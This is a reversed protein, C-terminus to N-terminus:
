EVTETTSFIFNWRGSVTCKQLVSVPCGHMLAVKAPEVDTMCVPKRCRLLEPAGLKNLTHHTLFWVPKIRNSPELEEEPILSRILVPVQSLLDQCPFLIQSHFRAYSNTLFACNHFCFDQILKINGDSCSACITVTHVFLWLSKALPSILLNHYDRSIIEALHKM